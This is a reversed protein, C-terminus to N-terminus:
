AVCAALPLAYRRASWAPRLRSGPSADRSAAGPASTRLIADVLSQPPPDRRPAAFPEIELGDAARLREVRAGAEADSALQPEVGARAGAELAGDAYANLTEDSLRKM